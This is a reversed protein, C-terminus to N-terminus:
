AGVREACNKCLPLGYPLCIVPTGCLRCPFVDMGSRDLLEALRKQLKEEQDIINSRLTECQKCKCKIQKM